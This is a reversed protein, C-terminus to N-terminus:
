VLGLNGHDFCMDWARIGGLGDLGGGLHIGAVKEAFFLDGSPFFLHVRVLRPSVKLSVEGCDVLAFHLIGFAFCALMSMFADVCHSCFFFLHSIIKLKEHFRQLLVRAVVVLREVFEFFVLFCEDLQTLLQYFLHLPLLFGDVFERLLDSSFIVSWWTLICATFLGSLFVHAGFAFGQYVVM